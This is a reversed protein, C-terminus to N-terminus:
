GRWVRSLGVWFLRDFTTLVSRKRRRQFAALQVRLAANEMAVAGHGSLLNWTLRKASPGLLPSPCSLLVTLNRMASHYCSASDQPIKPSIVIRWVCTM